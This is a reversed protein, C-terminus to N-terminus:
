TPEDKITIVAIPPSSADISSLMTPREHKEDDALDPKDQENAVYDSLASLDVQAYLCLFGPLRASLRWIRLSKAQIIWLRTEYCGIRVFGAPARPVDPGDPVFRPGVLGKPDFIRM